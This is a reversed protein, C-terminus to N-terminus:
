VLCCRRSATTLPDLEATCTRSHPSVLSSDKIVSLNVSISGIQVDTSLSLVIEILTM